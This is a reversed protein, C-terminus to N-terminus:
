VAQPATANALGQSIERNHAETAAAQVDEQEGDANSAEVLGPTFAGADFLSSSVGSPFDRDEEFYNATPVVEDPTPGETAAHRAVESGVAGLEQHFITQSCGLINTIVSEQSQGLYEHYGDTMQVDAEDDDQRDIVIPAHRAVEGDDDVAFEGSSMGGLQTDSPTLDM